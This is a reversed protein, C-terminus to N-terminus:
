RHAALKIPATDSIRRSIGAVTLDGGPKVLTGVFFGFTRSLPPRMETPEYQSSQAFHRTTCLDRRRRVVVRLKRIKQLCEIRHQRRMPHTNPPAANTFIICVAWKVFRSWLVRQQLSYEEPKRHTKASRYLGALLSSGCMRAATACNSRGFKRRAEVLFQLTRTQVTDPNLRRLKERHRV